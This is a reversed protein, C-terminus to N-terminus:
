DVILLRESAVVKNNEILRAIYLGAPLENRYLIFEQGSINNIQNVTQGMSNYITLSAQTLYKNSNWKLTTSSSFPNPYFTLNTISFESNNNILIPTYYVNVLIQDVYLHYFYVHHSEVKIAIGDIRSSEPISFGFNNYGQFLNTAPNSIKLIFNENTFENQKWDHEWLDTTGGEIDWSDSTDYPGLIKGQTFNEGNNWSLYVFPCACGAGYDVSSWVNDSTFANSPDTWDNPSTVSTPPLFGTNSQSFVSFATGWFVLISYFLNKM